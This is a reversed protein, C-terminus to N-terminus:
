PQWAVAKHGRLEAIGEIREKKSENYCNIFICQHYSLLYFTCIISSMTQGAV